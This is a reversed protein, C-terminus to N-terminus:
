ALVVGPQCTVLACSLLPQMCSSTGSGAAWEFLGASRARMLVLRAWHAARPLVGVRSAEVARSGLNAMIRAMSPKVRERMSPCCHVCAQQLPLLGTRGPVATRMPMAQRSALAQSHWANLRLVGWPLVQELVSPDRTVEEYREQVPALHAVISDALRPKFDGWRLGACEKAVAEQM